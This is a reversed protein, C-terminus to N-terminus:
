ATAPGPWGCRWARRSRGHPLRGAAIMARSRMLSRGTPIMAVYALLRPRGDWVAKPVDCLGSLPLQRLVAAQVPELLLQQDDVVHASASCASRTSSLTKM